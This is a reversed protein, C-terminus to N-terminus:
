KTPLGTGIVFKTKENNHQNHPDSMKHPPVTKARREFFFFGKPNTFM